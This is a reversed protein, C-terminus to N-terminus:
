NEREEASRSRRLGIQTEPLPPVAVNEGGRVGTLGNAKHSQFLCLHRSPEKICTQKQKNTQRNKKSSQATSSTQVVCSGLILKEHQGLWVKDTAHRTERPHSEDFGELGAIPVSPLGYLTCSEQGRRDIVAQKSGFSAPKGRFSQSDQPKRSSVSHLSLFLSPSLTVTSCNSLNAVASGGM